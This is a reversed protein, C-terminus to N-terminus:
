NILKNQTIEKYKYCNENLLLIYYVHNIKEEEEKLDKTYPLSILVLFDRKISEM